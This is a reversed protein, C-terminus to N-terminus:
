SEDEGEVKMSSAPLADAALVESAEKGGKKGLEKMAAKKAKGDPMAKVVGLRKEYEAGIGALRLTEKRGAQRAVRMREMEAARAAKKEALVESVTEAYMEMDEQDEASLAKTYLLVAAEGSPDVTLSVVLHGPNKEAWENLAEALNVKPVNASPHYAQVEVAKCGPFHGRADAFALKGPWKVAEATKTQVDSM